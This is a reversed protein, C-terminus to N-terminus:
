DVECPDWSISVQLGSQVAMATLNRLTFRRSFNVRPSISRSLIICHDSLGVFFSAASLANSMREQSCQVNERARLPLKSESLLLLRAAAHFSSFSLHCGVHSFANSTRQAKERASMFRGNGWPLVSCRLPFTALPVFDRKIYKEVALLM